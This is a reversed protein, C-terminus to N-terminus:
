GKKTYYGRAMMASYIHGLYEKPAEFYITNERDGEKIWVEQDLEEWKTIDKVWNPTFRTWSFVM